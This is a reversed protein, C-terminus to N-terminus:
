WICESAFLRHVYDCYEFIKVFFPEVNILLSIWGGGSEANNLSKLDATECSFIVPRPTIIRVNMAFAGVKIGSVSKM